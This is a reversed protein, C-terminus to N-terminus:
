ERYLLLLTSIASVFCLILGIINQWLRETITLDIGNAMIVIRCVFLVVAGIFCLTATILLKNQAMQSLPPIKRM